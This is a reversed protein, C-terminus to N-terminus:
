HNGEQATLAQILAECGADDLIVDPGHPIQSDSDHRQDGTSIHTLGGASRSVSVRTDGGYLHQISTTM